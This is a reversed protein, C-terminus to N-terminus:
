APGAPGGEAQGGLASHEAGSLRSSQLSQRLSELTIGRVGGGLRRGEGAAREDHDAPARGSAADAGGDSRDLFRRLVRDGFVRLDAESGIAQPALGPVVGTLRGDACWYECLLAGRLTARQCFPDGAVRVTPDLSRLLKGIGHWLQRLSPDAADWGAAAPARLVRVACREQGGVRFSEIEYIELEPLALRELAELLRRDFGLGVVLIRFAAFSAGVEPMAAELAAANRACFAQLALVRAPLAQDGDQAVLLLVARGIADRGVSDVPSLSGGFCDLDELVWRIGHEVAGTRERLWRRLNDPGPSHMPGCIM